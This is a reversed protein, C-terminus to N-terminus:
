EKIMKVTDEDNRAFELFKADAFVKPKYDFARSFYSGNLNTPKVHEYGKEPYSLRISWEMINATTRAWFAAQERSEFTELIVPQAEWDGRSEKTMIQIYVKINNEKKM